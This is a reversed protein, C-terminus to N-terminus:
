FLSKENLEKEEFDIVVPQIEKLDKFCQELAKFEEDFLKIEITREALKSIQEDTKSNM